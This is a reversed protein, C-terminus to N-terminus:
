TEPAIPKNRAIPENPAARDEQAVGTRLSRLSRLAPDGSQSSLRGRRRIWGASWQAATRGPTAPPERVRHTREARACARADTTGRFRRPGRLTDPRHPEPSLAARCPAGDPAAYFGKIYLIIIANLCGETLSSDTRPTAPEHSSRSCAPLQAHANLTPPGAPRRRLRSVQLPGNRLRAARRRRASLQPRSSRGSV